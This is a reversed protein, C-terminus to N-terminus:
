ACGSKKMSDGWASCTLQQQDADYASQGLTGVAYVYANQFSTCTARYSGTAQCLNGLNREFAMDAIAKTSRSTYAADHASCIATFDIGPADKVPKNLDGSYSGPVIYRALASLFASTLPGAGCGNGAWVAGFSSPIGPSAPYNSTTCNLPQHKKLMSCIQARSLDTEFDEEGISDVQLKFKAENAYSFPISVVFDDSTTGTVTVGELNTVPAANAIGVVFVALIIVTSLAGNIKRFM